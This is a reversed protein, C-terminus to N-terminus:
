VGRPTSAVPQCGRSTFSFPFRPLTVALRPYKRYPRAAFRSRSVSASVPGHVMSSVSRRPGVGETPPRCGTLGDEGACGDGRERASRRAHEERPSRTRVRRDAEAHLPQLGPHKVRYEGRMQKVLLESDSRVRVNAHGQALAWELGAILGRYEAVNNTTPAIAEGFETVLVGDPTEVRVGYAAPGPNGRSGGDTYLVIM